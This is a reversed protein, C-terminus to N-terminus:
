KNGKQSNKNVYMLRDARQIVSDVSNDTKPSYVAIGMAISVKKWLVNTKASNEALRDIFVKELKKRKKYDENRLIVAFEDGGIRFVPSHRFTSCILSASKKLYIDGRIHGFRDNISKLNNCDFIGIAFETKNKSEEISKQIDQVYIEFAGKNRVSTLSDSYALDNLDKIYIKLHGILENFTKTLVGVEDNGNYNLQVDYNGEDVQAAAETLKRLPRTIHRAMRMTFLVFILLLLLSILILKEILNIWDANIETIPVTVNLRMGNNLPLWVAQKEIGDYGYRVYPTDLLLGDPVKKKNEGTYESIDMKPHYVINGEADNIFAYGNKYISIDKVPEVITNYDIEIGIVGIFKGGKKVPVNYSLVYVDLNDTFYPPLWVSSGIAKPVTFWVLNSQDSTDYLSIDTVEHKQFGNGDLNVYWFGKEASIEPDIRYYYTLIGRTNNATKEFIDEVRDIHGSLNNLGSYKLDDEAYSSITEVSQEISKFYADLNKEGEECMLFLIQDSTNKGLNKIEVASIVTTIAIVIIIASVTLMIIKTRISHM